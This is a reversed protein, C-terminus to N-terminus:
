KEMVSKEKLNFSEINVRKEFEVAKKTKEEKQRKEKKEKAKLEVEKPYKVVIVNCEANKTCYDSTSGLLLRQVLGTGKTGLVLYDIKRKKALECITEGIHSGTALIGTCTFGKNMTKHVVKRLTERFVSERDKQAGALSKYLGIDYSHRYAIPKTVAVIAISDKDKHVLNLITDKLAYKANASGDIAIMWNVM